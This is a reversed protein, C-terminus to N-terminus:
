PEIMIKNISREKTKYFAAKIEALPYTANTLLDMQLQPLLSVAQKFENVTCDIAGHINLDRYHIQNLDFPFTTGYLYGSFVLLSGGSKVMKLGDALADTNSTAVVVRDVSSGPVAWQQEQSVDLTEDAGLQRCLALRQPRRGVVGIWSAGMLRALQVFTMGIPGDGYVLIRDGLQFGVQNWGHICCGVVESLAAAQPSIGPPVKVAGGVQAMQGPVYFYEAFGGHMTCGTVLGNECIHDKGRGCADCQMCPIIPAVTVLDGPHFDQVLSGVQVVEGCLEHGLVVPNLYRPSPGNFFMRMDSGCIGCAKVQLLLGKAEMQPIEMEELRIDEKGYLLTARM